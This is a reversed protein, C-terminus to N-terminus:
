YIVYRAALTCYFLLCKIQTIFRTMKQTQKPKGLTCSAWLREGGGEGGVSVSYCTVVQSFILIVDSINTIFLIFITKFTLKM